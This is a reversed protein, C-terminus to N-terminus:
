EGVARRPAAAPPIIPQVLLDLDELRVKVLRPGVRVASLRGDSIWRRISGESVGLYQGAEVLNLWASKKRTTNM